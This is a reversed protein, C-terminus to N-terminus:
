VTYNGLFSKLAKDHHGGAFDHRHEDKRQSDVSTTSYCQVVFNVFSPVMTCIVNSFLTKGLQKFTM